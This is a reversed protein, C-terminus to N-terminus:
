LKFRLYKRDGTVILEGDPTRQHIQIKGAHLLQHHASCLPARNDVAYMLAKSRSRYVIHHQETAPEKCGPVNCKRGYRRWVEERCVRERDEKSLRRERKAEVRLKGKPFALGSTDMGM